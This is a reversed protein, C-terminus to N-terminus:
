LFRWATDDRACIRLYVLWLIENVFVLLHVGVDSRVKVQLLPGLFIFLLLCEDLLVRDLRYTRWRVFLKERHGQYHFLGLIFPGNLTVGPVMPDPFLLLCCSFLVKLPLLINDFAQRPFFFFLFLLDFFINNIIKCHQHLGLLHHSVKPSFSHILFIISLRGVICFRSRIVFRKFTLQVHQCTLWSCFTRCTLTLKSNL